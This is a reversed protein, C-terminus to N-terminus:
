QFYQRIKSLPKTFFIWIPPVFGNEQWSKLVEFNSEIVNTLSKNSLGGAKMRVINLDIYQPTIKYKFFFRFMLEYDAAIKYNTKFLGFRDYFQKAIVTSQHPTMWGLFYKFRQFEGPKWVRVVNGLEDSYIKNVYFAAPNDLDFLDIFKIIEEVVGKHCFEDGSNLFSIYEAKATQVGKNMADYIGNDPECIIKSGLVEYKALIESTLDTSAGDVIIHEVGKLNQEYVSKCTKKLGHGDNYNITIIALKINHLKLGRPKVGIM